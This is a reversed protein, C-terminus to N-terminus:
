PPPGSVEEQRYLNLTGIRQVAFELDLTEM